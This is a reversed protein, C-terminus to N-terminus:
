TALGEWFRFDAGCTSVTLEGKGCFDTTTGCFGYQSCCVNLPCTVNETAAYPGCEALANCNSTCNGAGCFRPHFTLVLFYPASDHLRVFSWLRLLGDQWQLLRGALPNLLQSSSLFVAAVFTPALFTPRARGSLFLRPMAPNRSYTHFSRYRRYSRWSRCSLSCPEVVPTDPVCPRVEAKTLYLVGSATKLRHHM